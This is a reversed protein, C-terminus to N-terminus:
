GQNRQLEGLLFILILNLFYKGNFNGFLREVIQNFGIYNTSVLIKANSEELFTSECSCLIQSNISPWTTFFYYCAHIICYGIICWTLCISPIGKGFKVENILLQVYIVNSSKIYGKHSIPSFTNNLHCIWWNFIRKKQWTHCQENTITSIHWFFNCM